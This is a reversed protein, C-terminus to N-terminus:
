FPMGMGIETCGRGSDDGVIGSAGSGGSVLGLLEENALQMKNRRLILKKIYYEELAIVTRESFVNDGTVSCFFDDKTNKVM